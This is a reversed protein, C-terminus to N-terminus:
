EVSYIPITSWMRNIYPNHYLITDLLLENKNIFLDSYDGIVKINKNPEIKPHFQSLNNNEVNIFNSKIGNSKLYYNILPNSIVYDTKENKLFKNLFSISTGTKHGIVLNITLISLFIILGYNVLHKRMNNHGLSMLLLLIYVLPLVHRSKYILNQFFYIWVLYLISSFIIIKLNTDFMIKHKTFINKLLYLIYISIFLTIWNRDIWYGGLGDSWVTHFLFKIRLLMNSDTLITGGYDYFHGASHKYGLAILNYYGQTTILPFLWILIGILFFM